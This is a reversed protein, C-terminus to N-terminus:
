AGQVHDTEPEYPLTVTVKLGGEALNSLEIDGEHVRVVERAVVLGLGTGGTERSRSSEVRYFADFVKEMHQEPIGPGEDVIIVKISSAALQLTVEARKGYKLANDILNTFARRLALLRGLYPLRTDLGHYIVHHGMDTMDDTISELLAELDFREMVEDSTDQRAFNLVASIMQEMEDLDAVIKDQHPSDQLYETRLKLRTIPTRLDHSIAALMQTRDNVLRQIRAKMQNFAFVLDQIEGPGVAALPAANVDIGIRRVGDVLSGIPLSLRRITWAYFCIMVIMLALSAFIIVMFIWNQEPSHHTTIDLWRGNSLPVSLRLGQANSGIQAKVESADFSIIQVADKSPSDTIVTNILDNDRHSLYQPLEYSPITRATDIVHLIRNVMPEQDSSLGQYHQYGIFIFLALLMFCVSGGLNLLFVQYATRSQFFIQKSM